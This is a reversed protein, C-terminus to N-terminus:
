GFEDDNEDDRHKEWCHQLLEPADPFSINCINCLFMNDQLEIKKSSLLYTNLKKLKEWFNDDVYDLQDKPKIEPVLNHRQEMSSNLFRFYEEDDPNNNESSEEFYNDIAINNLTEFSCIALPAKSNLSYDSSFNSRLRKPPFEMVNPQFSNQSNKDNLKDLNKDSAKKKNDSKFSISSSDQGDSFQNQLHFDTNNIIPLHIDKNNIFDNQTNTPYISKLPVELNRHEVRGEMITEELDESISKANIQKFPLYIRRKADKQKPPEFINKNDQLNDSNINSQLNSDKFSNSKIPIIKPGQQHIFNPSDFPHPKENYGIHEPLEFINPGHKCQQFSPQMNSNDNSSKKKKKTNQDNNNFASNSNPFQFQFTPQFEDKDTTILNNPSLSQIFSHDESFDQEMYDGFFDNEDLPNYNLMENTINGEYLSDSFFFEAIVLKLVLFIYFYYNVGTDYQQHYSFDNIQSYIQDDSSIEQFFNKIEKLESDEFKKYKRLGIQFKDKIMQSAKKSQKQKLLYAHDINKLFSIISPHIDDEIYVVLVGNFCAIILYKIKEKEIYFHVIFDQAKAFLNLILEINPNDAKVFFSDLSFNDFYNIRKVTNFKFIHNMQSKNEDSVRFFEINKSTQMSVLFFFFVLLLLFSTESMFDSLNNRNLEAGTKFEM